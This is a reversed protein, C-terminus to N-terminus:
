YFVPPHSKTTVSEPRLYNRMYIFPRIVSYPLLFVPALMWFIPYSYLDKAALLFDSFSFQGGNVKAIKLKSILYKKLIGNIIEHKIKNNAEFVEHTDIIKILSFLILVSKSWFDSEKPTHSIRAKNIVLPKEICYSRDRRIVDLYVGYHQFYSGFYKEYRSSLWSKRQFILTSVFNPYEKVYAVHGVGPEFIKDSLIDCDKEKIVSNSKRNVRSYNSFIVGFDGHKDIVGRVYELANPTLLDDDGIFWCYDGNAHVIGTHCNKDFGINSENKYYKISSNNLRLGDVIEQTRDISCNDVIVIECDAECNVLISNITEEITIEGNYVPLVFSFKIKKPSKKM